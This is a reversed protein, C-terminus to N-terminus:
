LGYLPHEMSLMDILQGLRLHDTDPVTCSIVTGSKRCISLEINSLPIPELPEPAEFIPAQEDIKRTKKM